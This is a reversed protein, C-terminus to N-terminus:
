CVRVDAARGSGFTRVGARPLDSGRGAISLGSIVLSYRMKRYPRASVWGCAVSKLCDDMTDFLTM